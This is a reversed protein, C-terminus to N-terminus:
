KKAMEKVWEPNRRILELTMALGKELDFNEPKEIVPKEPQKAEPKRQTAM